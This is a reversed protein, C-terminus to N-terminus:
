VIQLSNLKLACSYLRKVSINYFNFTKGTKVLKM